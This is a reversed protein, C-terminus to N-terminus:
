LMELNNYFIPNFKSVLVNINSQLIVRFDESKFAIYEESEVMLRQNKNVRIKGFLYLLKKM